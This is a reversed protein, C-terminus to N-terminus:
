YDKKTYTDYVYKEINKIDDVSYNLLFNPSAMKYEGYDDIENRTCFGDDTFINMFGSIKHIKKNLKIENWIEKFVNKFDTLNIEYNIVKLLECGYETKVYTFDDFTDKFFDLNEDSHVFIKAVIKM